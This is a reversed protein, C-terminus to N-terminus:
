PAERVPIQVQRKPPSIHNERSHYIATLTLHKRACHINRTYIEKRRTIFYVVHAVAHAKKISIQRSTNVLLSIDPSFHCQKNPLVRCATILAPIKLSDDLSARTSVEAFM